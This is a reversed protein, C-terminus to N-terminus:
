SARLEKEPQKGNGGCTQCTERPPRSGWRGYAVQGSGNCEECEIWVFDDVIDRTM